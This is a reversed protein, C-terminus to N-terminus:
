AAHYRRIQAPEGADACLGPHKRGAGAAAFPQRMFEAGRRGDYGIVICGSAMAEMPPLGWGEQTSFSLFIMSDRIIAAAQAETKDKIEVIKFGHLANRFKLIALIQQADTEKKRSM